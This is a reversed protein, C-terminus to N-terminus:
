TTMAKHIGKTDTFQQFTIIKGDEMRWLHAMQLNIKADNKKYQAQYRGTALVRNGEMDYLSIDTLNWYHWEEGIRAFIGNLIAEPGVYPNRDAYPFNEAENWTIDPHFLSLITPVDGEAFADYLKQMITKM